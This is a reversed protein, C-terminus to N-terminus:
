GANRKGKLICDFGNGVRLVMLSLLESIFHYVKAIFVCLVGCSCNKGLCTTM